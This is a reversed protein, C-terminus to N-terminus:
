VISQRDAFDDITFNFLVLNGCINVVYHVCSIISLKEFTLTKLISYLKHDNRLLIQCFFNYFSAIILTAIVFSRCERSSQYM